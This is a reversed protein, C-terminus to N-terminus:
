SWWARVTFVSTQILQGMQLTAQGGDGAGGGKHPSLLCPDQKEDENVASSTLCCGAFSNWTCKFIQM